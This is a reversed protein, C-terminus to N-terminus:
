SRGERHLHEGLPELYVNAVILYVVGSLIAVLVVGGALLLGAPLATGDASGHMFDAAYLSALVFAFLSVLVIGTLTWALRRRLRVLSTFQPSAFIRQLEPDTM